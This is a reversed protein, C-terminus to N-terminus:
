DEPAGPEETRDGPTLYAAIMDQFLGAGEESIVYRMWRGDKTCDVLGSQALIKMHHSLTPQAIALEELLDSGCKSGAQLAALIALRNVDALAKIKKVDEAYNMARMGKQYKCNYIICENNDIHM